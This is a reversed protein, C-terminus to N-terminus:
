SVLHKSSQKSPPHVKDRPNQTQFNILEFVQKNLILRAIQTPKFDRRIQVFGWFVL